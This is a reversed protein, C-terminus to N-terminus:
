GEVAASLPIKEGSENVRVFTIETGFVTEDCTCDSLNRCYVCVRYTVSTFGQKVRETEFRLVSGSHVSKHFSVQSMGVTVFRFRPFDLGAALWATEDVWLLMKGGFLFGYQNLDGPMVLRYNTM